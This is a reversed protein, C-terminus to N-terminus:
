ARPPRGQAHAVLLARCLDVSADPYEKLVHAAANAVRPAAFSTGSDEAFPQGAAFTNSTSLEGVGHAGTMPRGGDRADLMMNGGYDVVDPKIAGNVSPGHRTFPSPQDARAVPRYGPDNPWRSNRENRALSGVTLASLARRRTSCRLPM